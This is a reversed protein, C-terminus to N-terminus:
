SLAEHLDDILVTEGAANSAVVDRCRWLLGRLRENDARLADREAWLREIQMDYEVVRRALKGTIEQRRRVEAVLEVVANVPQNGRLLTYGRGVDGDKTLAELLELEKEDM